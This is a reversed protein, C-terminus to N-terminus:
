AGRTLVVQYGAHRIKWGHDLLWPVALRGKGFFHGDSWPTDDLAVISRPHLKCQAAQVEELCSEAHGPLDTDLSDHYLVDVSEDPLSSLFTVSKDCHVRVSGRFIRTWREAFNCNAQDCDVSDLRGGHRYCYAGFLYTSLGAGSWDEEARMTGTEVIHPREFRAGAERLLAAFGRHRDAHNALGGAEGREFQDVFQQLQVDAALEDDSFYRPPTLLRRTLDVILGPDLCDSWRQQAIRFPIRVLPDIHRWCYALTLHLTRARPLAFLAPHHKTWLGLAPTNTLQALHLPGSDIGILLDAAQILALLDSVPESADPQFRRVRFSQLAPADAQGDLLVLTGEIADLLQRQLELCLQSDLNKLEPSTRGSTHLLVIPRPLGALWRQVSEVSSASLHDNAQLRVQCLEDWLESQDGIQPLPAVGLNSLVRNSAWPREPTIDAYGRHVWPHSILADSRRCAQAGAISLLLQREPPCDVELQYGRRRYLPVLHLFNVTDGLGHEFRLRVTRCKKRGCRCKGANSCSRKQCRPPGVYRELLAPTLATHGNDSLPLCNPTKWHVEQVRPIKLAEALAFGFTPNAVVLQAGAIVQAFELLSHVPHLPIRLETEREFATHEAALGLFVCQDQYPRLLEWSLQGHRRETRCVVIPAKPFPELKLWPRDLELQAPALRLVAGHTLALHQQYLVDEFQRFRDLDVDIPQQDYLEIHPLYDQRELLEILQRSASEGLSQKWPIQRHPDILLDGSGAARITPLSYIIDGLDGSHRFTRTRRGISESSADAAVREAPQAPWKERFRRRNEMLLEGSDIGAGLFTRHGFHHVYVDGAIRLEFGAAAARRCFDKDECQGLGYSEDLFGISDIVARRMLLCFGVLEDVSECGASDTQRLQWAFHEVDDPDDPANEIQQPSEPWSTRPGALGIDPESHLADLLRRLWGTTVLTDNNLLLLHDGRAARLGQNAAKPFGLNDYNEIVDVNKHTAALDRLYEVTGDTSGNDVLVLEYPVDTNRFLSDICCQTYALENHTLIVISTLGYERPPSPVAEILYQYVYYEEADAPSAARITLGGLSVEAPRGSEVWSEHGPGPVIAIAQQEFGARELLQAVDFRTFFHLHTEDLLGAPEYTWNGDLLGGLVSHHRVNPISILLQGQPRLLSRLRSLVALPDALHELVDGCVVSDLSGPQIPLELQEIDGLFVQDLHQRAQEAAAPNLEVGFVCCTQRDKLARGLNGVGCGLELVRGASLPVRELLEPRAFEFYSTSQRTSIIPRSPLSMNDVEPVSVHTTSFSEAVTELLRTMRHRYTHKQYVEAQGAAAIRKRAAENRLYYRVKDLLEEAPEYTALHLGDKFLEAQGNDALGNTLLLSRCGLAEFVRMNLDDRVSRNFVVRAASYVRAMDDFYHEGVYTNPFYQRLLRLLDERPGPFVHGVFAVDHEVPVDHPRHMDPDCALPLWTASTIGSEQLLRAGSCQAAFVVAFDPGKELYWPLDLHTDIAWWACPRLRSPLRYRLGDDINLFLDFGDPPIQDIQEPSFHRCEVLEELARQCYVGTTHPCVERDYILAVRRIEM